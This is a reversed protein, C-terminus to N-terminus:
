EYHTEVKKVRIGFKRWNQYVPNNKLKETVYYHAVGMKYKRIIPIDVTFAKGDVTTATIEIIVYPGYTVRRTLTFNEYDSFNEVWMKKWFNENKGNLAHERLLVAREDEDWTAMWLQYNMALMAGMHRAAVAEASSYSLGEKETVDKVNPSNPYTQVSYPYEIEETIFGEESASLDYAWGRVAFLCVFCAFLAALTLGRKIFIENLFTVNM